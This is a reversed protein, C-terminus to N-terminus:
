SEEVEWVRRLGDIVADDDTIGLRKGIAHITLRGTGHALLGRARTGFALLQEADSRLMFVDFLIAESRGSILYSNSWAGPESSTFSQISSSETVAPTAM